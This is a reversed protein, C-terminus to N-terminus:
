EESSEDQTATSEETAADDDSAKTQKAHDAVWQKVVDSLVAMKLDEETGAEKLADVDAYGLEEAKAEYAKEYEEDSPTLKADKAIVEIAQEEKFYEQANQKMQEDFQEQTIGSESIYDALEMGYAQAMQTYYNTATNQLETVRDEDYKNVKTQDMVAQWASNILTSKSAEENSAELEEKIEKKYEDVTKSKDSVSQVFKDTLEAPTTKIISNITVTFVADKGALEASYDEPFTVDIDSTEGVKKGILAEEFGEIFQGSGIELEAGEAAGGEFEEGDVKGVYDMNVTDGEQVDKRDKVEETTGEAELTSQINEEVEADTVETEEVKEIEVGKYKSVSVYENSASSSCGTASIVLVVSMLVLLIKKKM